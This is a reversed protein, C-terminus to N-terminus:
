NAVWIHHLKLKKFFLEVTVQNQKENLFFSIIKQFIEFSLCSYYPM